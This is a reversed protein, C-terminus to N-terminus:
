CRQLILLGNNNEFKHLQKWEPHNLLFPEIAERLGHGVDYGQGRKWFTTTDHFIIFKSVKDAHLALEVSCQEAHHNTDIFLLDTPEIESLNADELRFEFNIGCEKAILKLYDIKANYTVDYSIFKKPYAAMFAVTSNGYRTGLETIHECKEGFEKLAPCHENIDSPGTCVLAYETEMYIMGRSFVYNMYDFGDGGRTWKASRYLKVNICKLELEHLLLSFQTEPSFIFDNNQALYITNYKRDTIFGMKDLSPFLKQATDRHSFWFFEDAWEFPDTRFSGCAYLYHYDQNLYYHSINIVEPAIFDLRARIVFDYAFGNQVEYGCMIEFCKKVHNYQDVISKLNGNEETTVDSGFPVPVGLRASEARYENVVEMMLTRRYKVWEVYEPMDEVFWLGKLRDGFTNKILDIDTQNISREERIVSLSKTQWGETNSALVTESSEHSKRLMNERSTLIFVDADNPIVLNEMLSEISYKFNYATGSFLIATRM